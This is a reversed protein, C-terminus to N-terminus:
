KKKIDDSIEMISKIDCEDWGHFDNLRIEAVYNSKNYFLLTKPNDFRLYARQEYAYGFDSFQISINKQNFFINHYYLTVMEQFPDFEMKDILRMKKRYNFCILALILFLVVFLKFIQNWDSTDCIFILAISLIISWSQYFFIQVDDTKGSWKRLFIVTKNDMHNSESRNMKM